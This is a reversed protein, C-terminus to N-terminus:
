IILWYTLLSLTVEQTTKHRTMQFWYCMSFLDCLCFITLSAPIPVFTICNCVEVRFQLQALTVFNNLYSCSGLITAIDNILKDDRSM